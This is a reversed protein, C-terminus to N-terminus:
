RCYAPLQWAPEERIVGLDMCDAARDAGIEGWMVSSMGPAAGGGAGSPAQVTVQPTLPQFMLKLTAPSVKYSALVAEATTREQSALAAPVSAHKWILKYIGASDQPLSCFQTEFKQQGKDNTMTGLFVACEAIARALGIPTTSIIKVQPAPTGQAAAAQQWLMQFKETLTAGFPMAASVPPQQKAGATFPANRVFIGNGLAIQEGQPGSMAIVGNKASTVHWGTPVGVSASQDPATYPELQVAGAAAAQADEKALLTATAAALSLLAVGIRRAGSISTM